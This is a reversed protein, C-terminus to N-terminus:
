ANQLIRKAYKPHAQYYKLLDGSKGDDTSEGEPADRLFTASFRVLSAIDSAALGRDLPLGDYVLDLVLSFTEPTLTRCASTLKSELSNAAM